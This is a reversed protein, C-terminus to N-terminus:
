NDLVEAVRGRGSVAAGCFAGVIGIVLGGIASEKYSRAVKAGYWLGLLFPIGVGLVASLNIV